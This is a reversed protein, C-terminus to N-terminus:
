FDDYDDENDINWFKDREYDSLSEYCCDINGCCDKGDDKVCYKDKCNCIDINSESFNKDYNYKILSYKNKLSIYKNEVENIKESLKENEIFINFINLLLKHKNCNLSSIEQKLNKNM